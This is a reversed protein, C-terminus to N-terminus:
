SEVLDRLSDKSTKAIEDFEIYLDNSLQSVRDCKVLLDEITGDVKMEIKYLHNSILRSTYIKDVEITITTRTAGNPGQLITTM